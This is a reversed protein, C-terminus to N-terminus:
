PGEASAVTVSTRSSGSAHSEGSDTVTAGPCGPMTVIVPSCSGYRVYRSDPPFVAIDKVASPIDPRPTVVFVTSTSHVARYPPDATALPVAETSTM